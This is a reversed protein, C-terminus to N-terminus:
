EPARYNLVAETFARQDRIIEFDLRLKNNRVYCLDPDDPGDFYSLFEAGVVSVNDRIPVDKDDVLIKDGLYYTITLKGNATETKDYFESRTIQHPHLNTVSPEPELEVLRGGDSPDEELPDEDDLGADASPEGELPNRGSDPDDADADDATLDALRSSVLGRDGTADDDASTETRPLIPEVKGPGWRTAMGGPREGVTTATRQDENDRQGSPPRGARAAYHARLAAVERDIEDDVKKQDLRRTVLFGGLAGAVLGAAFAGVLPGWTQVRKEGEM